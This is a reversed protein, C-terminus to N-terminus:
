NNDGREEISVFVPLRKQSSFSSNSPSPSVSRSIQGEMHIFQCRQGYRCFGQQHFQRCKKTKYNNPIHTKVRLESEGHAFACKETFPCIGLEWNRCMETKFKVKFDQESGVRKKNSNSNPDEAININIKPKKPENIM